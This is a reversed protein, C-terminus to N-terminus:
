ATEEFKKLIFNVAKDVNKSIKKKEKEIGKKGEEVKIDSEVKIKGKAEDIMSEKKKDAEKQKKSLLDNSNKRAELIVKESQEKANEIIGEVKKEVEKIEKFIEAM